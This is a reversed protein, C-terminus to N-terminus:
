RALMGGDAVYAAGTVYSAEDSALFLVLRSIEEPEALRGLPVGATVAARGADDLGNAVM